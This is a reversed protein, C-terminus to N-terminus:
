LNSNNKIYETQNDSGKNLDLESLDIFNLHGIIYNGEKNEKMKKM